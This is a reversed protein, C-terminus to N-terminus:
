PACVLQFPYWEHQVSAWVRPHVVVQQVARLFKFQNLNLRVDSVNDYWRMDVRALRPWIAPSLGSHGIGCKLYFLPLHPFSSALRVVNFPTSLLLEEVLLQPETSGHDGFTHITGKAQWNYTMVEDFGAKSEFQMQNLHTNQALFQMTRVHDPVRFRITEQTRSVTEVALHTVTTPLADLVAQLRPPMEDVDAISVSHLRAALDPPWAEVPLQDVGDHIGLARVRTRRRGMAKWAGYEVEDDMTVSVGPVWDQVIRFATSYSCPVNGDQLHVHALSALRRPFLMSRFSVSWPNLSPTPFVMDRISLLHVDMGLSVLDYREALDDLMANTSVHVHTVARKHEAVKAWARSVQKARLVQRWPLFSLCYPALSSGLTEFTATPLTCPSESRKRKM